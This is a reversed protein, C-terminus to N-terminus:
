FVNINSFLYDSYIIKFNSSTVLITGDAFLFRTSDDDM